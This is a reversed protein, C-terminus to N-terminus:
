FARVARVRSADYKNYFNQYGSGFDQDWAYNSGNESSSWYYADEFASGSNAQATTNITVKNQYMADLEGKSPLFWDTYGNLSLNACIDAAIGAEGCGYEIDITNQAGTGIATGDAGAIVIWTCGWEAGTSQDSAAAILGHTEGGVYGPDGSQFIYAIKGGQYSDGVALAAAIAGDWSSMVAVGPSVGIAAVPTVEFSIYKTEDASVLQYTITTAGSIAAQNAGTADDARYWQFTSIGELDTDADSYSYSGTLTEGVELTGSFSVSSAVPAVNEAATGDYNMWVSGNYYNPKNTTTNYVMLGATPTIADRQTETMRPPLFGKDISKVQLMASGDASSGDTTIAVQANISFSILM